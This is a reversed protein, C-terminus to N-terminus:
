ATFSHDGSGVRYSAYGGVRRLPVAGSPASVRASPAAPVSVTATTNPPITVSLRFPSHEAQWRVAVRGYPTTQYADVETLGTPVYPRVTIAKYGPEAPQIGALYKFFWDDITGFMAHDHSRPASQWEEWLTTAGLSIWYGYSPFTRQTAVTYALDVNGNETLAPFLAMTGIIGTNLHNGNAAIDAALNSVVASVQGQPVMGLYLPFANSTQRYPTPIETHYVGNTTDLFSANFADKVAAALATYKAADAQNGLVQAAQALLVASRYYSATSVLTTGEPPAAYSGDPPQPAVWDGYTGTVLSKSSRSTLYDVFARMGDYHAALVDSDGYETYLRWPIVLGASSWTPDAGEGPGNAPALDGYNGNGGQDDAMVNLFNVGFAHMDFNDVAPATYLQADGFWGRKEYMPTDTPVGTLNNLITRRTMAHITNLLEDSSAFDGTHPVDTHAVRAKIAGPPPAETLGDIQIYQFSGYSFQPEWRETGTGALIYNDRQIEGPTIGPDGANDVTGDSQLVEGYRVIVETGSAGSVTIAPWGAIVAPFKYVFTGPRPTTVAVPELTDTVRIPPMLQSRVAPAPASRLVPATWGTTDLGPEDWGAIAKRADYTEGNYVSDTLTPSDHTLWSGDSVVTVQGGDALDVELKALLAPTASLWPATNWYINPSNIAYFGRGLVVGIANGGRRVLETVDYSSYLVRENYVTPAPDLVHDGVRQGNISAVYYGLGSIYLRARRVPATVTFERRLCPAPIQAQVQVASGWPGGGYAGEDLAAAWASDDFGPQEWGSPATQAAKWSGDTVVDVAGGSALEVQVHGLVGAPTNVLGDATSAQLNTAAVAITNAGPRLLAGIDYTQAIQWGNPVVAPSGTETGNVYVTYYDDATMVLTASAVQAGAPLACGGRFYRTEAPFAGDPPGEPYWIWHAGTLSPVAPVPPAIWQAGAWDADALLGTEWWSPTSWGSPRGQADLVQVSWYYRTAPALAGGGCTIDASEASAVRGSDWVDPAGRRLLDESTAVRVQYASQTWGPEGTTVAWSLRPRPVDVGLPTVLSETTLRSVTTKPGSARDAASASAPLWQGAALTAPVAGAARLFTRRPLRRM